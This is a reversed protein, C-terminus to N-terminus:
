PLSVSVGDNVCALASMIALPTTNSVSAVSGDGRAFLIVSTHHSGFGYVDIPNDNDGSFSSPGRGLLNFNPHIQRLISAAFGGSHGLIACDGQDRWGNLGNQGCNGLRSAPIHKEGLVLQNSTGDAWWSFSDRPTYGTIALTVPAFETKAVRIPGRHNSYHNTNGYTFFCAAWATSSDSGTFVVTAYDGVPGPRPNVPDGPGTGNSMSVGSRRSPCLYTTVSAFGRREEETLRDNWWERGYHGGGTVCGAVCTDLYENFVGPTGRQLIEQLSQKEIYPYLYTWFGARFEHTILPPIGNRADHFNHISLGIQKLNNSCQMRRAAERAAQVAPLLLAILIGIIAIVVLLEVLTFARLRAGKGLLLKQAKM